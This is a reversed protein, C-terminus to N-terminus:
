KIGYKQAMKALHAAHSNAQRTSKDPKLRSQFPRSAIKTKPQKPSFHKDKIKEAKKGLKTEQATKEKHKERWVPQLNSERHEGGDKLRKIHDIDFEGAFLKKGTLACKGDHKEFVRIRVSRPITQDDHKAIWEKVARSM